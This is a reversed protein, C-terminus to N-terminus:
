TMGRPRKIEIAIPEIFPDDAIIQDVDVSRDDPTGVQPVTEFVIVEFHVGVAAINQNRSIAPNGADNECSASKDIPHIGPAIQFPLPFQFMWLLANGAIEHRAKRGRLDEHHIFAFVELQQIRVTPIQPDVCWGPIPWKTFGIANFIFEVQELRAYFNGADSGTIGVRDEIKFAAPRISDVSGATAKEFQLTRGRASLVKVARGLAARVIPAIAIEDFVEFEAAGPSEHNCIAIM